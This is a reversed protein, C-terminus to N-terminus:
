HSYYLSHSECNTQMVIFSFIVTVISGGYKLANYLYGESTFHTDHYRRLCQALRFWPPLIRIVLIVYDPEFNFSKINARYFAIYFCTLQYHDMICLVMSTLQDAIWFDPFNVKFFPAAFIHGTTRILWLRGSSNFIPLPCLLLSLPVVLCALPFHLKEQVEFENHHIFFIMSLACTFGLGSAVQLFTTAPVRKRLNGGFILVHNIGMNQWVHVNVTLYFICLVCAMPGRYLRIFTAILESNSRYYIVLM